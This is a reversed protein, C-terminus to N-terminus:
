IWYQGAALIRHDSSLPFAVFVAPPLEASLPDSRALDFRKRAKRPRINSRVFM